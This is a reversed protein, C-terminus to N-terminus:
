ADQHFLHTYNQIFIIFMYTLFYNLTCYCQQSECQDRARITWTIIAVGPLISSRIFFPTAFTSLVCVITISSTPKSTKILKVTHVIQPM